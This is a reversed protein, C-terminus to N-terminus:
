EDPSFTIETKLGAFDIDVAFVILNNLTWKM